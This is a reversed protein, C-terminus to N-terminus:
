EPPRVDSPTTEIRGTGISGGAQYDMRQVLAERQTQTLPQDPKGQYTGPKYLLVRDQEEEFCGTLMSAAAFAPALWRVIRVM